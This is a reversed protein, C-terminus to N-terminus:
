DKQTKLGAKLSVTIPNQYSSGSKQWTVDTQFSKSGLLM